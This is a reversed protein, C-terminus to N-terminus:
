NCRTRALRRVQTMKAVASFVTVMDVDTEHQQSGDGITTRARARNAKSGKGTSLPQEPVNGVFKKLANTWQEFDEQTLAKCHM